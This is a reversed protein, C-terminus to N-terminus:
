ALAKKSCFDRPRSKGLDTFWFGGHADFVIDNPGRLHHEGVRDYLIDVRGTDLDIREIRGGTYGSPQFTPVQIDGHRQWHFGGNNCVYCAGDPGIAAGNPGGGPRAVVSTTGTRPDIRTLTGRRIEVVLLSGDPAVVPGEPFELGEALIRM